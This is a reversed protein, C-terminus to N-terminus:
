LIELAWNGTGLDMDWSRTDPGAPRCCEDIALLGVKLVMECLAQMLVVHLPPLRDRSIHCAAAGQM